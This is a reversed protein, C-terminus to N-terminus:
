YYVCIREKACKVQGMPKLVGFQILIQTRDSALQIFKPM